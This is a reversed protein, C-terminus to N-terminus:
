RADGSGAVVTLRTPGNAQDYAFVRRHYEVLELFEARVPSYTRVVDEIVHMLKPLNGRYSYEALFVRRNLEAKRRYVAYNDFVEAIRQDLAGEGVLEVLGEQALHRLPPVDSALIPLAMALGDSFKAPMQYHSTLSTEEQILCILDGAALYAPVDLFPVNSLHKVQSRNVSAFFRQTKKDMASGVVLFKYRRSNLRSLASATQTLGKHTRPTGVFVIVKDSSDFGLATRIKNRDYIAPDFDAEDRVHPIITGGYKRRLEENSVTLGDFGAILSEGYRTWTGEHPSKFDRKPTTQMIAKLDMPANDKVFAVEYDDVDLLLPRNRHMKALIGLEMAPLRAKSVYIIDGDLQQAVGEMRAFHEPFDGGPFSKITVRSCDRLPEWLGDGFRPFSAAVIEVQYHRRLLDALLYARGVANHTVNWAVISVKAMPRETRVQSQTAVPGKKSWWNERQERILAQLHKLQVPRCDTTRTPGKTTDQPVGLERMEQIESREKYGGSLPTKSSYFKQRGREILRRIARLPWTVKWSLSRRMAAERAIQQILRQELQDTKKELVVISQCQAVIAEDRVGVIRSKEDLKKTLRDTQQKLNSVLEDRAEITRTQEDVKGTLRDTQQKLNSVLEDRAEITRTQEDMKGTLRDTQQKLNSVLEDRAEITRTQEDVKGTLRDTQQKLDSSLKGRADITRSQENLKGTLRANREKLKTVSREATRLTTESQRTRRQYYNRDLQTSELDRLSQRTARSISYQSSGVSADGSKLLKWLARQPPTLFSGAERDSARHRYLTSDVFQSLQEPDPEMLRTVGMEGLSELVQILTGVTNEMLADYSVILRPMSASAHLASRNYIEWLALGSSISFGNRRQLSRAVEIPNRCVLICIARRIYDGLVPLLLCLRPEKIVWSEHTNMISVVSEFKRRQEALVSHAIHKADFNAVKWWDAGSSHLLEDCIQRIDRREWFGWPNEINARTLEIDEGVWAGCLSLVGTITSTGSRHMGLVLMASSATSEGADEKGPVIDKGPAAPLKM